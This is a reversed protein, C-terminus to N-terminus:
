RGWKWIVTNTSIPSGISELYKCRYELVLGASVKKETDMQRTDWHEICQNKWYVYGEHDIILHEVGVLWPKHYSNNIVVNGYLKAFVEKGLDNLQDNVALQCLYLDEPTLDDGDSTEHIIASAMDCRGATNKMRHLLEHINDM